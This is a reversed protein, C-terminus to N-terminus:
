PTHKAIAQWIWIVAHSATLIALMWYIKNVRGTTIEANSPEHPTRQATKAIRENLAPDSVTVQKDATTDNRLRAVNADLSQQAAELKALREESERANHNVVDTVGMMDGTLWSVRVGVAELKTIREGQQELIKYLGNNGSVRRSNEQDLRGNTKVQECALNALKEAIDNNKM